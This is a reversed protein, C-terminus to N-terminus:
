SASRINGNATQELLHLTAQPLPAEGLSSRVSAVVDIYAAHVDSFPQETAQGDPAAILSQAVHLFRTFATNVYAPLFALWRSHTTILATYANLLHRSLEVRSKYNRHQHSACLARAASYVFAVDKLVAAAGEIQEARLKHNRPTFRQKFLRYEWVAM